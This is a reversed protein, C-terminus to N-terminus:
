PEPDLTGIVQVQQPIPLPEGATVDHSAETSSLQLFLQNGMMFQTQFFRTM